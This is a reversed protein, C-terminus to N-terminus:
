CQIWFADTKKSQGNLSYWLGYLSRGNRPHIDLDDRFVNEAEQYRKSRLLLGGLSERILFYWDPPENYYLGDQLDIAKKLWLIADAMQGKMEAIKGNLQNEAINFIDIAKNYGYVTSLPIKSKADMFLKQEREANQMDGLSSYAMARWFAM